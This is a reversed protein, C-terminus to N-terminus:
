NKSHLINSYYQIEAKNGLKKYVNHLIHYSDYFQSGTFEHTEQLKTLAAHIAREEDTIIVKPMGGVAEFFM